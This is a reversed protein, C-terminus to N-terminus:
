AYIGMTKRTIGNAQIEVVVEEQKLKGALVEALFVMENEFEKLPTKWIDIIIVQAGDEVVVKGSKRKSQYIGKQAVFSAGQKRQTERVERVVPILDDMTWTPVENVSFGVLLRAALTKKSSWGQPNSRVDISDKDGVIVAKGTPRFMGSPWYFKGINACVALSM